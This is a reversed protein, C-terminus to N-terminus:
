DKEDLVCRVAACDGELLYGRRWIGHKDMEYGVRKGFEQDSSWWFGGDLNQTLKVISSDVLTHSYGVFGRHRYFLFDMQNRSITEVLTDWEGIRPLRWGTPCVKQAAAWNYRSDDFAANEFTGLGGMEAQTKLPLLYPQEERIVIDHLSWIRLDEPTGVKAGVPVTDLSNPDHYMRFNRTWVVTDRQQSFVTTAFLLSFVIKIMKM